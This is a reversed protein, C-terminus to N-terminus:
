FERDGYREGKESNQKIEKDLQAWQESKFWKEIGMTIANTEMGYKLASMVRGHLRESFGVKKMYMEFFKEKDATKGNFRKGDNYIVSPYAEWFESAPDNNRKYIESVFKDTIIFSDAWYQNDGRNENIMYGRRVLDQVEQPSLGKVQETYRYLSPYDETYILFMFLFQDSSLQHKALFEVLEKPTEFAIM